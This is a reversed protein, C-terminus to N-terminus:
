GAADEGHERMYNHTHHHIQGLKDRYERKNLDSDGFEYQGSLGVDEGGTATLARTANEAAEPTEARVKILMPVDVEARKEIRTMARDLRSFLSGMGIGLTGLVPLLLMAPAAMAVSGLGLVSGTIRATTGGLDDVEGYINRIGERTRKQRVTEGGAVAAVSIDSERFGARMLANVGHATRRQNAYLGHVAEVKEVVVPPERRETTEPGVDPTQAKPATHRNTKPTKKKAPKTPM